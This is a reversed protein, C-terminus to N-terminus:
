HRIYLLFQTISSFVFISLVLEGPSKRLVRRRIKEYVEYGSTPRGIRFIQRPFYSLTFQHSM